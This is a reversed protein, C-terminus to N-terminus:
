LTDIPSNCEIFITGYHNGVIINLFSNLVIRLEVAITGIFIYTTDIGSQIKQSTGFFNSGNVGVLSREAGNCGNLGVSRAFILYLTSNNCNTSTSCENVVGGSVDVDIVSGDASGNSILNGNLSSGTFVTAELLERGAVLVRHGLRTCSGDAM